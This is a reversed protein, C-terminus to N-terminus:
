VRFPDEVNVGSCQVRLAVSKVKLFGPVAFEVRADFVTLAEVRDGLNQIWCRSGQHWFERPGFVVRFGM